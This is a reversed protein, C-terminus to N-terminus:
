PVSLAFARANWLIYNKGSEAVAHPPSLSTLSRPVAGFGLNLTAGKVIGSVNAGIPACGRVWTLPQVRLTDRVEM